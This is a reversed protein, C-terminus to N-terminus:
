HCLYVITLVSWKPWCQFDKSLQIKVRHPAQQKDARRSQSERLLIIVGWQPLKDGAGCKDICCLVRIRGKLFRGHKVARVGKSPGLHFNEQSSIEKLARMGMVSRAKEGQGLSSSNRESRFREVPSKYFLSGM